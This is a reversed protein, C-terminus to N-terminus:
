LGLMTRAATIVQAPKIGTMCVPNACEICHREEMVCAGSQITVAHRSYPGQHTMDTHGYLGIVHKNLATAIHFPGSDNGVVMSCRELFAATRRLHSKPAIKVHDGAIRRITECGTRETENGWIALFQAAGLRSSAAAFEAYYEVPWKKQPYGGTPVLGIVIGNEPLGMTRWQEGADSREEPSVRWVLDRTVVPLEM